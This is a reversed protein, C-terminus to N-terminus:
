NRKPITSALCLMMTHVSLLLHALRSFDAIERQAKHYRLLIPSKFHVFTSTSHNQALTLIQTSKTVDAPFSSQVQRHELGNTFWCVRKDEASDCAADFINQSVEPKIRHSWPTSENPNNICPLIDMFDTCGLICAELYSLSYRSPSQEGGSLGGSNSQLRSAYTCM